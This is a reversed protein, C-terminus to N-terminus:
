VIKREIRAIKIAGGEAGTLETKKPADWGQMSVLQKIAAHQDKKDECGKANSTLIELAEERSLIASTTSQQMIYDYFSKVHVHSFMKYAASDQSDTSKASGGAKLYAQRQTTGNKVLELVFKRQLTTLKSALELQKEDM